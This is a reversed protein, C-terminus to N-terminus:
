SSQWRESDAKKWWRIEIRQGPLLTGTLRYTGVGLQEAPHRYGFRTDICIGEYAKITVQPNLTPYQFVWSDIDNMRKIEETEFWATVEKGEGPALPVSKDDIKLGCESKTVDEENLKEGGQPYRKGEAVYGFSLIKSSGTKHFWEDIAVGLFLPEKSRGVNRFKRQVKVHLGCTDNDIPKLECTQIHETCVIHAGYIWEMEGKLEKPLIYGFAVEFVDHAIRHRFAVELIGGIIGATIFAIGLGTVTSYWLNDLWKDSIFLLIIGVSDHPVGTPPM